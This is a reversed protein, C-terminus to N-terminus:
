PAGADATVREAVDFDFERLWRYAGTRDRLFTLLVGGGQVSLSFNDRAGPVLAPSYTIGAADLDPLSVTLAGNQATVILTGVGNTDRYTGAYSPLLSPDPQTSLPEAGKTLGELHQVAYLMTDNFGPGNSNQLVVFGFGDEMNLNWYSSWGPQSGSHDVHRGAFYQGPGFDLGTTSYVGYGYHDVDGNLHTDHLPSTMAARTADCLVADNGRYLFEVFRAFDVVSSFAMGAPRIAANDTGIPDLDRQSGPRGASGNTYDRGAVVQAPYFTTRAMGLPGTVYRRMADPYYLGSVREIALGALMFNTSSYNWVAGPPSTFWVNPEFSQADTLYQSLYADDTPGGTIGIQGLIDSVGSTQALLESMTLRSLDDGPPLAVDPAISVLTSSVKTSGADVLHLFATATLAKTMSGIRFLTSPCVPSTTHIGKTGAGYAFALRGHELIAIAAGPGNSALEREFTQVLGAYRPPVPGNPRECFAPPQPTAGADPAPASDTVSRHTAALLRAVRSAV